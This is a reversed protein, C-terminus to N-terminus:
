GGLNPMICEWDYDDFEIEEDKIIQGKHIEIDQNFQMGREFAYIKLDINYRRSIEALDKADIGWAAKYDNIVLVNEDKEDGYEFDIESEIFNRNTDKVYFSGTISKMTFYHETETIEPPETTQGIWTFTTPVLGEKLFRKIDEINGRVKLTGECWNAM